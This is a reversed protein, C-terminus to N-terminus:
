GAEIGGRSAVAQGALTDAQREYSDSPDSIKLGDATTTGAVSGRAQQDTHVLEHVTKFLGEDSRVDLGQPAVVHNGSVFMEADVAKASAAAEAGEHVQVGSVSRGLVSSVVSSTQHDLPRGPSSVVSRVLDGPSPESPGSLMSTVAANGASRQLRLAGAPDLFGAQAAAVDAGSAHEDAHVEREQAAPGAKHEAVQENAHEVGAM